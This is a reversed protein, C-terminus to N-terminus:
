TGADAEYQVILITVDDNAPTRGCFARVEAALAELLDQPGDARHTEIAALLRDDGFPNGAEDCADTVGDSFIIVRDGPQLAIAEEEFTAQEFLGLILGGRDLRRVGNATILM